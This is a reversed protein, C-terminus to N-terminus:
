RRESALGDRQDFRGPGIMLLPRLLHQGRQQRLGAVCHTDADGAHRARALGGEDLREADPQDLLALQRHQGDIRTTTTVPPEMRPSLVRMSHRALSAKMRGLRRGTRQRASLGALGHQEAFAAPKSTIMM